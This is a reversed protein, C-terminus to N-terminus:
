RCGVENAASNESGETDDSQRLDLAAAFQKECREGDEEGDMLENFSENPEAEIALERGGDGVIHARGVHEVRM